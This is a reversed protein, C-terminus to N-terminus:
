DIASAPATRIVPGAFALVSNILCMVLVSRLQHFDDDAHLGDIMRAVCLEDGMGPMIKLDLIPHQRLFALAPVRESEAWRM